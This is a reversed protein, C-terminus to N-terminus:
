QEFCGLLQSLSDADRNSSGPRYKINYNFDLLEGVWGLRTASLKATTLVYALPNNDM